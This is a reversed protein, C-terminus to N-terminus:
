NHCHFKSSIVKQKPHSIVEIEEMIKPIKNIDLRGKSIIESWNRINGVKLRSVNVSKEIIKADQLRKLKVTYDSTKSLVCYPGSYYAGLKQYKEGQGIIRPTYLYM